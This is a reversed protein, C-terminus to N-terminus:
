LNKNTVITSIAVALADLEDDRKKTVEIGLLLGVM